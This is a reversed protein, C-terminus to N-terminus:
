NFSHCLCSSSLRDSALDITLVRVVNDLLDVRALVRHWLFLRVDGGGGDGSALLRNMGFNDFMKNAEVM